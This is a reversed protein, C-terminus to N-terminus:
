KRFKRVVAVIIFLITLMALFLVGKVLLNSGDEPASPEQSAFQSSTNM